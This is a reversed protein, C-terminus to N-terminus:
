YIHRSKMYSIVHTVQLYGGVLLVVIRAIPWYMVAHNLGISQSHFVEERQKSFQADGAITKARRHMRVLEATVRSTEDKVLKNEVELKEEFANREMALQRAIAVLDPEVQISFAVRSPNEATATYSQVCIELTGQLDGTEYKFSGEMEDLQERQKVPGETISEEMSENDHAMMKPTIMM